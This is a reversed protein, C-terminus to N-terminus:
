NFRLVYWVKGKKTFLLSQNSNSFSTCSRSGGPWCCSITQGSSSGVKWTRTATGHKIHIYCVGDSCDTPLTTTYASTATDLGFMYNYGKVYMDFNSSSGYSIGGALSDIHATGYVSLAVDEISGSYYNDAKGDQYWGSPGYIYVGKGYGNSIDCAAGRSTYGSTRIGYFYVTSSDYTYDKASRVMMGTVSNSGTTHPSIIYVATGPLTDNSAYTLSSADVTLVGYGGYYKGANSGSTIKYGKYPKAGTSVDAISLSQVWACKWRCDNAGLDLMGASGLGSRVVDSTSNAVLMAKGGVSLYINDTSDSTLMSTTNAATGGVYYHRAYVDRWRKDSTGLDYTKNAGVGFYTSTFHYGATSGKALGGPAVAITSSAPGTIYNYGARSFNISAVTSDATGTLTIHSSTSLGGSTLRGTSWNVKALTTHYLKNDGPTGVIPRDNNSSTAPCLVTVAHVNGCATIVGANLYVPTTDSGKTATLATARGTGAVYVPQATGGVATGRTAHTVITGGTNPFYFNSSATNPGYIDSYFTTPGCIRLVGQKNKATGEATANGLTLMATGRASTTGELSYYQFGNNARLTYDTGATYGTTWIPYYWTGTTPNTQTVKVSSAGGELTGVFTTAYLRGTSPQAYFNNSTYVVNTSTDTLEVTSKNIVGLVVPRFNSTTTASQTVKTDTNTDTNTQCYLDTATGDITLTGVKTGSTLSRTFSVQTKAETLIASDSSQKIVTADSGAPLDTHCTCSTGTNWVQWQVWGNTWDAHQRVQLEFKNTSVRVIRMVNPTKGAHPLYLNASNVLSTASVYYFYASFPYSVIEAGGHNNGSLWIVGRIATAQWANSSPASTYSSSGSVIKKWAKDTSGTGFNAYYTRSNNFTKFYDSKVDAQDMWGPTANGNSKLLQGSTGGATPAFITFAASNETGAMNWATGNLTVVRKYFATNQVNSINKHGGGGMLAYDNSSGNKIFGGRSWINTGLAANVKGNQVMAIQHGGAYTSVETKGDKNYNADNSWNTHFYALGYLNNTSSGDASISYGTGMSWVHGVKYSDYVGYAGANRYSTGAPLFRGTSDIVAKGNANFGTTAHVTGAVSIPYAPNTVGIGLYGNPQLFRAKEVGGIQFIISTTATGSSLYLTSTSNHTGATMTSAVFANTSPNYGAGSSSDVYVSDYRPTGASAINTFLVPYTNNGSSNNIYIKSTQTSTGSLDGVFKTAYLEGTSPKAYFKLSVYSKNTVDVELSADAATAQTYGMLLPRFNGSTTKSQQVLSDTNPNGPITLTKSTGNIKVTISSGWSSGGGSVSSNGATLITYGELLNNGPYLSLMETWTGANNYRMKLYGGTVYQDWDYTGDADTGRQFILHPSDGSAAYLKVYGYTQINGTSPQMRLKHTAYVSDTVTTPAFPESDNYSMGVIFPRWSTNSATTVTQTVKYFESLLKHGGGGLLVYSDSSGTRIFKDAYINKAYTDDNLRTQGTVLLDLLLAM